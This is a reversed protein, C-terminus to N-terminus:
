VGRRHTAPSSCTCPIAAPRTTRHHEQRWASTRNMYLSGLPGVLPAATRRGRGADGQPPVGRGRGDGDPREGRAEQVRWTDGDGLRGGSRRLSDEAAPPRPQDEVAGGPLNLNGGGAVLVARGHRRALVQQEPQVTRASAPPYRSLSLSLSLSSATSTGPM